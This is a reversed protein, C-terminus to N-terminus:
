EEENDPNQYDDSHAILDDIASKLTYDKKPYYVMDSDLDDYFDSRREDDSARLIGGDPDISFGFIYDDKSWGGYINIEFGDYDVSVNDIYGIFKLGDNDGVGIYLIGEEDERLDYWAEDEHNKYWKSVAADYKFSSWLYYYLRDELIESDFLDEGFKKYETKDPSSNVSKLERFGAIENIGLM